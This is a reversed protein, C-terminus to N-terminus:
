WVYDHNKGSVSRKSELVVVGLFCYVYKDGIDCGFCRVEYRKKKRKLMFTKRM